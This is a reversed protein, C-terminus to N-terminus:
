AETQASQQVLLDVAAGAAAFGFTGTVFGATGYGSACDLRLNSEPERVECVSGDSQPYRVPEPSFVAPIKWKKRTNRPFDFKQRLKKRVRQLLADDYTRSLDVVQVQSPDSRGGAAGVTVVQLGRKRCEALLLCKHPISDICDVVVQPEQGLISDCNKENFFCFAEKVKTAPSIQQIRVAMASVKGQGVTSQLAHVQRNLNSTCIEDMDVLLLTGVGARALAEAVWSGVGGIGIICVTSAQLYRTAPVGYLRETGGFIDSGESSPSLTSEHM